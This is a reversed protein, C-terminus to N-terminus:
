ITVQQPARGAAAMHAALIEDLTEQDDYRDVIRCRFGQIQEVCEGALDYVDLDYIFDSADRHRERAVLVVFPSDFKRAVWSRIEVPLIKYQPVCIQVAHLYCDRVEPPGLLSSEDAIGNYLRSERPVRIKAICHRSSIDHFSVINHFMRGQFFITGYLSRQPDISVPPPWVGHPEALQAPAPYWACDGRFCDEAFRDVASRVTVRVRVVGPDSLEGAVARIRIVRGTEPVVIPRLFQVNELRMDRALTLHRVCAHAVQTMAEMGMVAPLLLSGNFSHEALYRDIAPDLNVEVNTEVAPLSALVKQLFRYPPVPQIVPRLTDLGALRSCVILRSSQWRRNCLEVFKAAGVSLPIPDIGADRLKAISGLRAGMGVGDWISFGFSRCKLDPYEGQLRELLRDMWENALAYDANGAMGSQAIISSFVTLSKLRAPDLHALLNTLGSM